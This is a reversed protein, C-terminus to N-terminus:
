SICDTAGAHGDVWHTFFWGGAAGLAEIVAIEHRLFASSVAMRVVILQSLLGVNKKDLSSFDSQLMYNEPRLDELLLLQPRMRLSHPKAFAPHLPAFFSSDPDLDLDLDPPPSAALHRRLCLYTTTTTASTPTSFLRKLVRFLHGPPSPTRDM